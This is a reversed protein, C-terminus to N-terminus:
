SSSSPSSCASPSPSTSTASSSTRWPRSRRLRSPRARVSRPATTPATLVTLPPTTVAEAPVTRYALFSKLFQLGIQCTKGFIYRGVQEGEGGTGNNSSTSEAIAEDPGSIRFLLMLFQTYDFVPGFVQVAKTGKTRGERREAVRFNAWRNPPRGVSGLGSARNHGNPQRM